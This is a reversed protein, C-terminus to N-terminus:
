ILSHLVGETSALMAAESFHTASVQAAGSLRERLASDGLLRTLARTLTEPNGQPVLLGSQENAVVEPNGGVNTAIIPAGLAAAEILLHSLGEYSSNLVFADASKMVALTDANSLAGVLLARAGLKKEADRKLEHALPGDGVIALSADKTSAVAAIIGAVGKWPVLRAVTVVLPRPLQAVLEPVIGLEPAPVANYIVEIRERPVGWAEVIGALYRSPVLVRRAALAVRTQVERLARVQVPVKQTIVFEDLTATIGYRQRGQEWAYDGVIKVVFPKGARLAARLAPVGTSVPDLALVIDAKRAAHFVRRYYIYHRIVKPLHRVSAFRIVEVETGRVPLGEAL